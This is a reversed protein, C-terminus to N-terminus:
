GLNADTDLPEDFAALFDALDFDLGTIPVIQQDCVVEALEELVYQTCSLTRVRHYIAFVFAQDYGFEDFRFPRADISIFRRTM